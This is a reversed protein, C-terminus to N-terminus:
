RESAEIAYSLRDRIESYRKFLPQNRRTVSEVARRERAIESKREQVEEFRKLLLLPNMFQEAAGSERGRLFPTLRAQAGTFLDLRYGLTESTQGQAQKLVMSGPLDPLVEKAIILDFRHQTLQDLAESATQCHTVTFTPKSALLRALDPSDDAVLMSMRAAAVISESGELLLNRKAFDMMMTVVDELIQKADKLLLQAGGSGGRFAHCAINVREKLYPVQLRDKKIVDFAGKRFAEISLDASPERSLFILRSQPSIRRFEALVEIGTRNLLQFDLLVVPFFKQGALAIAREGDEIATVTFGEDTFLRNMGSLARADADVILLEEGQAM